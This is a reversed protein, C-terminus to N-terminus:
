RVKGFRIRKYSYGSLPANFAPYDHAAVLPETRFPASRFGTVLLTHYFVTETGLQIVDGLELDTQNCPTIQLGYETNNTAFRWFAEVGTWAPARDNLDVYYWGYQAFNMGIGGFFLCQSVFNTCDGGLDTFNYFRPNFSFAWEEAYAVCKKRDFVICSIDPFLFFNKLIVFPRM